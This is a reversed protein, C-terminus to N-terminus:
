SVKEVTDGVIVWPMANWQNAMAVTWWLQPGVVNAPIPGDYVPYTIGNITVNRKSVYGDPVKFSTICLQPPTVNPIEQPAGQATTQPNILPPVPAPTPGVPQPSFLAGHLAARLQNVKSLINLM